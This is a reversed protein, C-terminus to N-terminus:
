TKASPPKSQGCIKRAVKSQGGARCAGARPVQRWACRSIRTSTSRHVPQCVVAGGCGQARLSSCRARCRLGRRPRAYREHRLDVQGKLTSRLNRPRKVSRFYAGACGHFIDPSTIAVNAVFGNGGTKPKGGRSGSSTRSVRWRRRPCIPTRQRRSDNVFLVGDKRGVEEMRYPLDLFRGCVKRSPARTSGLRWRPQRLARRTRRTIVDAYRVSVALCRSRARRVRGGRAIIRIQLKSCISATRCRVACSVRARHRKGRASSATPLPLRAGTTMSASLPRARRAASGAVLREAEGRRLAGDHWASRSSGCEPQDPHRGVSRANARSRDSVWVLM